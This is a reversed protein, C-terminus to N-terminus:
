WVRCIGYKMAPHAIAEVYSNRVATPREFYQNNRNQERSEASVYMNRLLCFAGAVSM